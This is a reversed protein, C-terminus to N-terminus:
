EQREKEENTASSREQNPIHKDETTHKPHHSGKAGETMAGGQNGQNGITFGQSAQQSEKTEKM